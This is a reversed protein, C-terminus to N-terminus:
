TEVSSSSVTALAPTAVGNYILYDMSAIMSALLVYALPVPVIIPFKM